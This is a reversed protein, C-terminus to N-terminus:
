VNQSTLDSLYIIFNHVSGQTQLSGEADTGPIVNRPSRWILLYFNTLLGNIRRFLVGLFTNSIREELVMIIELLWAKEESAATDHAATM